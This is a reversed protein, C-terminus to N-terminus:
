FQGSQAAVGLRILPRGESGGYYFATIQLQRSVM